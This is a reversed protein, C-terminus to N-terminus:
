VEIECYKPLFYNVEYYWGCENGMFMRIETFDINSVLECYKSQVVWNKNGGCILLEDLLHDIRLIDKSVANLDDFKWM